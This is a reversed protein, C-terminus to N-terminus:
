QGLRSATSALRARAQRLLMATAPEPELDLEALMAEAGAVAGAVGEHDRRQLQAAVALRHAREFYPSAARAQEACTLSEDFRGAVLRLEGLRLTADVLARRVQELEGALEVFGHLDPLPDGQWLVHAQELHWAAQTSDGALLSQEAAALHRRLDWLDVEVQPPAALALTPGDLRLWSCAQGPRREPEILRRLRSLTVRLNRSASPPDLDPWMLDIAQERRVSGRLVLLSLLARVRGRRLEPGDITADGARLRLPGLVEIRLPAQAPDPLTAVLEGAARHLAGEGQGALWGLEDHVADPSWRALEGILRRGDRCGAAEAWATLEVSWPLPLATLVIPGPALEATASLRGARGDLLQRAVDLFQEHSPGLAVSDWRRRVTPDCVYAIAPSRRLHIEGLQDTLPFRGLHAAITAAAAREDHAVIQRYAVAIAAIASDRADPDTALVKDILTQGSEVAARDGFSAAVATGYAAQFLLDRENIEEDADTPDARGVFGSPDGAQWQLMAPIGRVYPSPSRRLREGVVVAEDARGALVLMAAHLRTVLETASQPVQTFPTSALAALAGEVDGALGALAAKVAGVLFRLIPERDAAPLAQVREALQFLRLQDGRFHAVVAGLALTVANADADGLTAFRAALEDIDWDLEADDVHAAHRLALAVLGLEPESRAADPAGALWRSATDVPLAGFSERVLAVCARRLWDVASWRLALSGVRLTEGRAWLLALARERLEGVQRPPFLREVAEEWLKHIGYGGEDDRWLLPVKSVLVDLDVERGAVGRVDAASGWGLTALALLGAREWPALGAVIEEWLFQSDAGRPASLTLRVLSPWGALGDVRAPEHGHLEALAAAEGPTFALDDVRLEVVQGAARLRATPLSLPERSALLLHAHPPLQRAIDSLLMSATSAPPLEHVDDLVLCVDVPSQARLAELVREVPDRGQLPGGLAAVIALSLRRADEDGPECSIWADVGRPAAQNARVAQALATTKGFGAGAVVVTLPVDFRHSLEALLRSRVLEGRLTPPPASSRRVARARADETVM